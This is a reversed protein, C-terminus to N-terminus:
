GANLANMGSDSQWRLTHETGVHGASRHLLIQDNSGNSATVLLQVQRPRIITKGHKLM